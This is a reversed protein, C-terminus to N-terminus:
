ASIRMLSRTKNPPTSPSVFAIADHGCLWPMWDPSNISDPVEDVHVGDWTKQAAFANHAKFRSDREQQVPGDPLTARKAQTSGFEQVMKCRPERIRQYASLYQPIEATSRARELCEALTVADEIAM